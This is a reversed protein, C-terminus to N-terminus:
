PRPPSQAPADPRGYILTAALAQPQRSLDDSRSVVLRRRDDARHATDKGAAAVASTEVSVPM